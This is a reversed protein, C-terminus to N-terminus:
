YTWRVYQKSFIGHGRNKLQLHPKNLKERKNKGLGFEEWTEKLMYLSISDSRHHIQILM